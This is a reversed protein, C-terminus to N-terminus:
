CLFTCVHLANHVHIQPVQAYAILSGVVKSVQSRDVDKQFTSLLQPLNQLYSTLAALETCGTPRHQLRQEIQAYGAWVHAMLSRPVALLREKLEDILREKSEILIERAQM